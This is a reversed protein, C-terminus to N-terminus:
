NKISNILKKNLSNFFTNENMDILKIRYDSKRLLVYHNENLFFPENGDVSIYVDKMNESKCEFRIIRSDSFLMPRIFLSHPCILNMEICELDPEIVPGGASLAYATSGTPTSFIVGDARYSGIKFEDAFIDFDFIKSYTRSVSVDNLASASYVEEGNKDMVKIDLMMRETVTYKRDKLNLLSELQNTELSAMFGLTGTNIGLLEARCGTMYGACRLITGDGGIAMIIDMDRVLKYFDGFNVWHKDSFQNEFQRDIYLEAEDKLIDCIERAYYIANKKQFNPFVATKLM